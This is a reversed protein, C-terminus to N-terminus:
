VHELKEKQATLEIITKKQEAIEATLKKVDADNRPAADIAKRDEVPRKRTPTGKEPSQYM